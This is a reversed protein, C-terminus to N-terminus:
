SWFRLYISKVLTSPAIELTHMFNWKFKVSMQALENLLHVPFADVQAPWIKHQNNLSPCLYASVHLSVRDVRSSCRLPWIKLTRVSPHIRKVHSYEM